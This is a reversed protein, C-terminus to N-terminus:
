IIYRIYKNKNKIALLDYAGWGVKEGFSIEDHEEGKEYQFHTDLKLGRKM